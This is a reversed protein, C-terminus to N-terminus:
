PTMVGKGLIGETMLIFATQFGARFPTWDRFDTFGAEARYEATNARYTNYAAIAQEHILALMTEQTHPDM